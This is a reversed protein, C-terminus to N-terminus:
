DHNEEKQGSIRKQGEVHILGFMLGMMAWLTYAVKSSVFVDIYLANVMLGVVGAIFAASIIIDRKDRSRLMFKGTHYFALGFIALFSGLGLIGTEGLTRLYDNDTSEAETFDYIDEKVLTSYGTGLLPNTKFAAWARPWLADLRIASSLGLAHATDSYERGRGEDGTGATDPIGSLSAEPFSLPIDDFVDAPRDPRSTGQDPVSPPTDTPSTVRQALDKDQKPDKSVDALDRDFQFHDFVNAVLFDEILYLRLSHEFRDYMSGIFRMGTFSMVVILVWYLVLNKVPVKAVLILCLFSLGAIFAIFSTVSASLLLVGLVIALGVFSLPKYKKPALIFITIFFLLAVISYAALDYHGAFTSSVRAHETLVLRWGKAFERNMTSYVPWLLYKQGFGYLSVLIATLGFVSMMRYVSEKSTVAAFFVLALSMYEVRRAWHLFLKGAHSTELPVTQTVLLASISSVLGIVLYILIPKFLPNQRLLAKGRKVQVLFLIFAGLVLFDELRVRVIYGPLVDFLPWKPYLPLFALLFGATLELAHNDIWALFRGLKSKPNKKSPRPQKKSHKMPM